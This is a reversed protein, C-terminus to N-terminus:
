CTLFGGGARCPWPWPRAVCVALSRFEEQMASLQTPDPVYAESLQDFGWDLVRRFFTPLLSLPAVVEPEDDEMGGGGDGSGGPLPSPGLASGSRNGGPPASAGGPAM